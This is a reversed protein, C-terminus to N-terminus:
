VQRYMYHGSATCITVVTRYMYHGSHPVYLSWQVTCITVVPPVYLSWQRYMCHGNATCITVVPPVYLSWQATCITVVQPVYLSWQARFPWFSWKEKQIEAMYFLVQFQPNVSRPNFFSPTHPLPPIAATLRLMSVPHLNITLKVSRGSQGGFVISIVNTSNKSNCDFRLPCHAKDTHKTLAHLSSPSPIHSCFMFPTLNRIIYPIQFSNHSSETPESQHRVAQQESRWCVTCQTTKTDSLYSKDCGTPESITNIYGMCDGGM